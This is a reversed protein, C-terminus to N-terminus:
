VGARAVAARKWGARRERSSRSPSDLRGQVPPRRVVTELVVSEGIEDESVMNEKLDNRGHKVAGLGTDVAVYLGSLDGFPLCRFHERKCLGTQEIAAM